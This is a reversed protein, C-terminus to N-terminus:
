SRPKWEGDKTYNLSGAYGCANWVADFHPRLVQAPDAGLDEVPVGAPVVLTDRDIIHEGRRGTFYRSADVFMSYGKVGLLSLMVLVPPSLGLQRQLALYGGLAGILDREFMVSRILRRGEHVGTFQTDVAEITGTRFLQTYGESVGEDTAGHFTMFGDFNHRHNWAGAGIPRMGVATETTSRLDVGVGVDFATLPLVHLVSKPRAAPLPVPTEGREIMALRERRFGRVREELTESQLFAERLQSADLRFKGASSRGYFWSENRVMHPRRWSRPVRLILVTRNGAAPVASYEIPPLRPDLGDRLISDFRLKVADLNIDELGCIDDAIGTPHGEADRKERVGYLLDGGITNAFASIDALFEMKDRPSTGPLGEKYEIQRDERVENTVLSALVENTVRSLPVEYLPM